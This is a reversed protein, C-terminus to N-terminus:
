DSFYRRWACGDISSRVACILENADVGYRDSMAHWTKNNADYLNRQMEEDTGVFDECFAYEVGDRSFVLTWRDGFDGCSTDAYEAHLNAGSELVVTCSGYPQWYGGGNRCTDSNFCPDFGCKIDQIYFM